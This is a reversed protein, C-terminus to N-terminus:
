FLTMQKADTKQELLKGFDEWDEIEVAINNTILTYDFLKYLMLFDIRMLIDKTVARKSDTFIIAKLFQQTHKHNLLYLAIKAYKEKEFGIFYCTDDLMIPKGNAPTVLTFHTTKYMGSIAIKYPMFSYDGIGFISFRPKGQYISSKRRDFYESNNNLYEFTLPYDRKIYNTEQGIKKQTVITLKRYTNTQTHKLDSSKLLGYVLDSEIHLEHNLGNIYHGNNREFEMVKACDHKLGQRWVFQSKGDIDKAQKYDLVSNVFKNNVWGFIQKEQLSYLDNDSCTLGAQLNFEAVFFCADVSVNFEKKADIALKKLKNIPYLNKKQDYVLNKVVSNKVLFGFYGQHSSFHKLMLLSISEGIDFNGKGTLADFGTHKKFNSKQPLNKSALSSLESNTVWPPNGIICTSLSRTEKSLSEFDFDFVNAHFIEILPVSRNKNILFFDLINFKAEWVYPQYIEIGVIRKIDTFTALAAIIFHGKGCTPELIFAINEDKSISKIYDASKLALNINTQFDGYERRDPEEAKNNREAILAIFRSLQKEDEFFSKVGCKERLLDNCSQLDTIQSQNSIFYEFSIASIDITSFDM